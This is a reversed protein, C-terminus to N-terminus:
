NGFLSKLLQSAPDTKEEGEGEKSDKSLLKQLEDAARNILAKTAQESIASSDITPRPRDLTGALKLKIETRGTEDSLYKAVSIQQSLKQSLEPSFQLTVPLDLKGDLGIKGQALGSVESGNMTSKLFLQGNKVDLTGDIKEFSLERLEDMKLLGAVSETIATKKIQGDFLGYDGQATLSKKMEPWEIGNGSFTMHTNLTGSVQNFEKETLGAVASMVQLGDINFTGDYALGPQNLDVRLDSQIQGDAARASFDSVTFIGKELNYRVLFDAISLGKYRSEDIKIQGAVKLGPPLLKGPAVPSGPTKAATKKEGQAAAPAGIGALLAMLHDIDLKKSLVDLRIDPAKAYNQVEGQIHAKENDLDVDVDFAIQQQNFRGSGQVHPKLEQYVADVLFNLDGQYRLSALDPGIELGINVNAEATVDPLEGLEDTFKLGAKEISIQNVTLALPLAATELGPEHVPAPTASSPEPAAALVALSEFNFGGKKDRHITIRPEVIKIESVVVKKQLLPMLDYRLVFKKVSLFDAKNDAEKITVNEVTIGSFLGAKIGSIDVPRGLSKEAQPIIIEKLREETLYFRVFLSLGIIVVATIGALGLIVKGIKGM